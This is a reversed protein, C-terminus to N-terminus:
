GRLIHYLHEDDINTFILVGGHGEYWEMGYIKIGEQIGDIEPMIFLMPTVAGTWHQMRYDFIGASTLEYLYWGDDEARECYTDIWYDTDNYFRNLHFIGGALLVLVIVWVWWKKLLKKM